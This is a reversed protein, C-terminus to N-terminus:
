ELFSRPVRLRTGHTITPQRLDILVSDKKIELVYVRVRGDVAQDQSPEKTVIVDNKDVFGTVVEEPLELTIVRESPFMGLSVKCRITSLDDNRAVVRKASTKAMERERRSIGM